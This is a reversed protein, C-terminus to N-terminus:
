RPCNARESRALAGTLYGVHRALPLVGALRAAIERFDAFDHGGSVALCPAQVATLDFEAVTPGIQASAQLEFARAQM